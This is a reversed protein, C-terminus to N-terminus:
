RTFNVIPILPDECSDCRNTKLNNGTFLFCKRVNSMVLKVIVRVFVGTVVVLTVDAIYNMIKMSRRLKIMGM